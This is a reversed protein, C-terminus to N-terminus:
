SEGRLRAIRERVPLLALQNYYRDVAPSRQKEGQPGHWLHLLPLYGFRTSELTEARDWFDNDEGGWGVFREDFGGIADFGESTIAVSGGHANQLVKECRGSSGLYFLFRKLDIAAYGSEAQRVIERAYSKPVLIDGDHLVLLSARAHRVGENFAASRNYPEADSAITMPIHAVWGPLDSLSVSQEVVVVEVPVDQGAISEITELLLPLRESGRHGIIFSVVPSGPVAPTDRRLIPWEGFSTRMLREAQSPFVDCYHVTSTWQWECRVGRGSEDVTIRENRNRILQWRGRVHQEFRPADYILAGALRRISNPM